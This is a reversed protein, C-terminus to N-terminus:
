IMSELNMPMEILIKTYRQPASSWDEFVRLTEPFPFVHSILDTFPRDRDELMKIVSPFAQLANRSGYLDLERSVITATQLAIEGKAYGIFVVRGAFAVGEIAARYTESLGVAEIAVSVGENDTLADIRSKIDETTSNVTHTAGLKNALELKADDIDVAIVVAGKQSSAAVAGLGIAGCGLVLVTDVESIRGRNTAHYGVSMPEVLALEQLTLVDSAYAKDRHIAIREALAGDRQVGLTKNFQCANVRGIRCAPCTGCNTYPSVTVAAGIRVGDPVGNGKAIVMGSVEHGPIRPYTVLPSLGRYANLDSGCLGVYRPEILVDEPGMTPEPVDIVKVCKPAVLSVAKM